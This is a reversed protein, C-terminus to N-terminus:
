RAPPAAPLDTRSADFGTLDIDDRVEGAKVRVTAPMPPCPARICQVPQLYAGTGRSGDRPWAFVQYEGAPVRLQWRDAHAPTDVCLDPGGETPSACVRMAPVVKAPHMVVGGITALADTGEAHACGALVLCSLLTLRHRM